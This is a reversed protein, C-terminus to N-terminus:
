ISGEDKSILTFVITVVILVLSIYPNLIGLRVFYISFIFTIFSSVAIAKKAGLMMSLGFFFLWILFMFGVVLMNNTEYSLYDIFDGLGNVSSGNSYNSPYSYNAM